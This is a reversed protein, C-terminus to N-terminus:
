LGPGTLGHATDQTHGYTHAHLYTYTELSTLKQAMRGVWNLGNILRSKRTDYAASEQRQYVRQSNDSM